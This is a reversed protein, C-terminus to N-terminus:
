SWGSLMAFNQVGKQYKVELGAKLLIEQVLMLVLIVKV